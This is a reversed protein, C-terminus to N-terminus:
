LVPGRDGAQIQRAGGGMRAPADQAGGPVVGSGGNKFIKPRPEERTSRSGEQVGVSRVPDSGGSTSFREWVRVSQTEPPIGFPADPARLLAALRVPGASDSSFNGPFYPTPEEFEQAPQARANM